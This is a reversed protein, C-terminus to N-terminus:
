KSVRLIKAEPGEVLLPLLAPAFHGTWAYTSVVDQRAQSIEVASLVSCEMVLAAINVSSSLDSVGCGRPIKCGSQMRGSSLLSYSIKTYMPHFLTVFDITV